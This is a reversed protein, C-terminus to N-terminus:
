GRWCLTRYREQHGHWRGQWETKDASLFINITSAYGRGWGGGGKNRRRRLDNAVHHGWGSMRSQGVVLALGSAKEMGVARIGCGVGRKGGM